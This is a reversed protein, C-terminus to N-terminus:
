HLHRAQLGQKIHISLLSWRMQDRDRQPRVILLPCGTKLSPIHSQLRWFKVTVDFALAKADEDYSVARDYQVTATM